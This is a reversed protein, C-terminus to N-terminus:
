LHQKTKKLFRLTLFIASFSLGSIFGVWVGKEAMGFHFALLYGLPIGLIWYAIFIFLTPTNVDKIGRLLGASTAQM